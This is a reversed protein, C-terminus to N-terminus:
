PICEIAGGPKWILCLTPFNRRGFLKSYTNHDIASASGGLPHSHWTGVYTLTGGSQEEIVKSHRKAGEKGLLFHTPSASSDAPSKLCKIVTLVKTNRNVIGVIFGGTENPADSESLQQMDDVATSLVRVEYGDVRNTLPLYSPKVMVWSWNVSCDDKDYRDTFGIFGNDDMGGSLWCQIKTAMAAAYQSIISDELVTTVSSCGQGMIVSEQDNAAFDIDCDGDLVAKRMTLAHLDDVRPNRASGERLVLGIGGKNYISTHIVRSKSDTVSIENMFAMSATSDILIDDASPASDLSKVNAYASAVIGLQAVSAVQYSSKPLPKCAILAHRANNHAKFYDADVFLFRENGNRALHLSIKSGLSGCGVQVIRGAFPSVIGSMRRLLAPSVVEQLALLEVKCSGMVRKSKKNRKVAVDFPFWEINSSSGIIKSPRRVGLLIRVHGRKDCGLNGIQKELIEVAKQGIAEQCFNKLETFTGIRNPFYKDYIYNLPALIALVNQEAYPLRLFTYGNEAWRERDFATTPFCMVPATNDNRMPVWGQSLDMLDDMAARRLWEVLQDFVGSLGKPQQLLEKVSGEIICPYVGAKSPNIHPFGRPFDERLKFVPAEFPYAQPFSVHVNELARVGSKSIGKDVEAQLLNVSIDVSLVDSMDGIWEANIVHPHNSVEKIIDTRATIDM